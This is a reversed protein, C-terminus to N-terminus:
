DRPAARVPKATQPASSQTNADPMEGEQILSELLDLGLARVDDWDSDRAAELGHKFNVALLRKKGEPTVFMDIFAQAVAQRTAEPVRPHAALAHPTFGESVWLVRLRSRVHPSANNFTRMIGGGAPILGQAVARYVSDHSAVYRPTIPIDRQALWARTLISAAFAAPSPVALTQHALDEMKQIESDRHIVIIGKIKQNKRKAFAVYGPNRHFVTYHYPNMYAFDYEGQAVRQEFRPISPATRFRVLHGSQESVHRLIPGWLRALKSASQQPVIGLILANSERSAEEQALASSGIVLGAFLFWSSLGRMNKEQRTTIVSHIIIRSPKTEKVPRTACVRGLRKLRAIM